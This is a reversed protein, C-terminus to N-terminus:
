NKSAGVTFPVEKPVIKTGERLIGVGEIVVKDGSTLGSAVAYDNGDVLSAIQIETAKVRHDEGVLYVFTKGQIEYTAKQPIVITNELYNPLKVTGRYGSRIIADKNPFTARMAFSGTQPDVQGSMSAIIGKESYLSGDSLILSVPPTNSLKEVLTGGRAYKLFDLQDKENVSFYAYIHDINSVTTLAPSISSSVYSGKRYPLAGVYGTVPSEITTYGVNVRANILNAKAQALEAEKAQLALQAAQLEYKSIIDKEVLPRTKVVQMQATAVSAQASRVAADAVRAQQEYQPNRISFLPAGQKVYGGEDVYIREIFGDIKPRIEINEKGELRAPFEKYLTVPATKVVIYKYTQPPQQLASDASGSGQKQKKACSVDLTYLFILLGWTIVKARIM